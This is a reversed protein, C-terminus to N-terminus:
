GGTPGYSEQVLQMAPRLLDQLKAGLIASIPPHRTNEDEVLGMRERARLQMMLSQSPLLNGTPEGLLYSCHRRLVSIMQARAQRILGLKEGAFTTARREAERAAALAAEYEHRACLDRSREIHHHVDAPHGEPLGLDSAETSGSKLVRGISASAERYRALNQMSGAVSYHNAPLYRGFLEVAREGHSVAEKALDARGESQARMTLTAALHDLAKALGLENDSAEIGAVAKRQLEEAERYRGTLFRVRALMSQCLAIISRDVGHKEFISLAELLLPEAAALKSQRMYAQALHDMIMAREMDHEHGLKRLREILDLFREEASRYDAALYATMAYSSLARTLRDDDVNLAGYRAIAWELLKSSEDTEGCAQHAEALDVASTASFIAEEGFNSVVL